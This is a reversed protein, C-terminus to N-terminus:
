SLAEVVTDAGVWKLIQEISHRIAVENDQLQMFDKGSSDIGRQTRAVNSLDELVVEMVRGVYLEQQFRERVNAAPPVYFRVEYHCTNPSTPWFQHVWFGGPGCDLQTHPFLHNVDMAWNASRTPNVSPHTLFKAAEEISAAAITSGTKVSSYALRQVHDDPKPAYNPNGYESITRHPGFVRADLLRAFPNDKSSFTAGITEPHIIPIHYTEIFADSVVKWNADLDATVVVPNDAAIYHLGTLHEAIPGLFTKLSVEPKRQLNVFIWGEWVECGMASLGCNAKDVNFFSPSDPIGVLRGDNAYTWNHYPCLFRSAKGQRASVVESGRHSCSNYFAKIAGTNTHTILVSLKCPPIDKVLFDGPEAIEEVRAVLLWARRFVRDRELEYFAASRYPELPVPGTELGARLTFQSRGSDLDVPQTSM